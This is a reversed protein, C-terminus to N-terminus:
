GRAWRRGPHPPPGAVGGGASGGGGTLSLTAVPAPDTVVLRAGGAELDYRTADSRAPPLQVHATRIAAAPSGGFSVRFGPQVGLVTPMVSSGGQQDLISVMGADPTTVVTGDSGTVVVAGIVAGVADSSLVPMGAIPQGNGDSVRVEVPSPNPVASIQPVDIVGSPFGI